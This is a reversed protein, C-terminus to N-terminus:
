RVQIDLRSSRRKEAEYILRFEVEDQEASTSFIVYDYDPWHGMEIRANQLRRQITAEDETGRKRLRKELDAFTSTTLFVRVLSKQIFADHSSRVQAGGQVDIALLIDKGDNLSDKVPQLPTGYFNGHVQAYELFYKEEAKKLFTERDVFYYDKGEVEGSRPARTTYSVSYAFQGSARLRDCLTTKGGGSPGSIIFLIGSRKM